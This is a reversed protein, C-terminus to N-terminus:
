GLGPDDILRNAKESFLKDLTLAANPNDTNVGISFQGRATHGFAPLGIFYGNVGM